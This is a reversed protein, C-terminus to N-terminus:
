WVFSQYNLQVVYGDPNVVPVIVLQASDLIKTVKLICVFILMM